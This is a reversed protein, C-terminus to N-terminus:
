SVNAACYAADYGQELQNSPKKLGPIRSVAATPPRQSNDLSAESGSRKPPGLGAGCRRRFNDHQKLISHRVICSPHALM